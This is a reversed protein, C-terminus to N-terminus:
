ICLQIFSLHIGSYKTTMGTFQDQIKMEKIALEKKKQIKKTSM